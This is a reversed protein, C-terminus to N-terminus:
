KLLKREKLRNELEKMEDAVNNLPSYFKRLHEKELLEWFGKTRGHMLAQSLLGARKEVEDIWYDFPIGELMKTKELKLQEREEDIVKAKEDLKKQSEKIKEEIKALKKGKEALETEYKENKEAKIEKELNKKIEEPLKEIKLRLEVIKEQKKEIGKKLSKIKDKDQVDDTQKEQLQQELDNREKQLDNIKEDYQQVLKDHKETIEAEKKEIRQKVAEDIEAQKMAEKEAELIAIRRETSYIPLDDIPLTGSVLKQVCHAVESYNYKSYDVKQWGAQGPKPDRLPRKDPPIRLPLIYTITDKLSISNTPNDTVWNSFLLDRIGKPFNGIAVMHEIHKPTLNFILSLENWEKGEAKMNALEICEAVWNFTRLKNESLRRGWDKYESTDSVKICPIQSWKKEKTTNYLQRYAKYRGEGAIIEFEGETIEKVLIPNILGFEKINAVLSDIKKQSHPNPNEPHPHIKDLDYYEIANMKRGGEEM